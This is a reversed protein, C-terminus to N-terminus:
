NTNDGGFWGYGDSGDKWSCIRIDNVFILLGVSGANAGKGDSVGYELM